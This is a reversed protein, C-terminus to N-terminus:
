EGVKIDVRWVERGGPIWRGTEVSTIPYDPLPRRILCKGDFRVGYRAFDFNLADHGTERRTEPIDKANEPFASLLFRGRTHSDQCDEKLYVLANETLYVDYERRAAPERASTRAYAARYFSLAAEDPPFEIRESWIEGGGVIWQGVEIGRLAYDPLPRRILCRDGIMAGHRWFDFGLNDYGDAASEPPLDSMDVPLARVFFRADADGPACPKREYILAGGEIYVDFHSSAAPPANGSPMDAAKYNPNLRFVDGDYLSAVPELGDLTRLGTANYGYNEWAPPNYRHFWAALTEGAAGRRESIAASFDEIDGEPVNRYTAKEDSHIYLARAANSFVWGGEARGRMYATTEMQSWPPWTWGKLTEGRATTERWNHRASVAAGYVLWVALAAAVAPAIWARSVSVIRRVSRAAKPSPRSPMAFRLRARDMFFAAAMTMPIFLPALFRDMGMSGITMGWLLLAMYAFSFGATLLVFRQGGDEARLRRVLARLTLAGVVALAAMTAGAGVGVSASVPVFPTWWKSMSEMMPIIWEWVMTDSSDRYRLFFDVTFYNRLAWLCLPVGGILAYASASALRERLTVGPRLVLLAIVTFLLAIGMYRSLCHLACFAASLLPPSRKGDEFHRDAFFLALLGTLIFGSESLAWGSTEVVPRALLVCACAWVVLWRSEVRRRLWVGAVLISLGFAAAHLPGAVTLPDAVGFGFVAFSVAALPGWQGYYNGDWSRLGDGELLSRAMSIFHIADGDVRVGHQSQRFLALAVGAAALCLLALTLPDPRRVREALRGRASALVRRLRAASM